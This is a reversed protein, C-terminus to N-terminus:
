DVSHEWAQGLAPFWLSNVWFNFLCLIKMASKAWTPLHPEM